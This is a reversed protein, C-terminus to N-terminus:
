YCSSSVALADRPCDSSFQISQLQVVLVTPLLSSQCCAYWLPLNGSVGGSQLRVVLSYTVFQVLLLWVVVLDIALKTASQVSQM